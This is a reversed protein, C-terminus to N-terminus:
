FYPGLNGSGSWSGAWTKQWLNEDLGRYFIGMHSSDTSYSGVVGVVGGGLNQNVFGGSSTWTLNWLQYNDGVYFITWHNANMSVASIGAKVGNGLAYWSPTWTGNSYTKQCAWTDSGLVFVEMNGDFRSCIAPTDVLGAGGLSVSTQVVGNVYSKIWCAGDTGRYAVAWHNANMSTASIGSAVGSGYDDWANSLGPTWVGNNYNRHYLHGNLNGRVFVDLIGDARSCIAPTNVTTGNLDTVTWGGNTTFTKLFVENGTGRVVMDIRNANMSCAGPGVTGMPASTIGFNAGVARYPNNESPSNIVQQVGTSPNQLTMQTSGGGDLAVGWWAGFDKLWQGLEQWSCGESYGSQRGDVTLLILYRGDQSIGAGTRCEIEHKYGDNTVGDVLPQVDGTIGTWWSGPPIGANYGLWPTLKYYDFLLLIDPGPDPGPGSVVSNASILPGWVDAYSGTAPSFFNANIACRVGYVNAFDLTTQKTTDNPASGNSPTAFTQVDPNRLSIRLVSVKQPRPSTDEGHAYEIGEWNRFWPGIYRAHVITVQLLLATLAIGRKLMVMRKM